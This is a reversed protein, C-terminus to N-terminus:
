LLLPLNRARDPPPPRNEAAPWPRLCGQDGLPPVTVPGIPPHSLDLQLHAAPPTSDPQHDAIKVWDCRCAVATVETTGGEPSPSRRDHGAHQCCSSKPALSPVSKKACCSRGEPFQAVSAEACRCIRMVFGMPLLLGPLMCLLLFATLSRM